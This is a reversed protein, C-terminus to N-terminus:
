RVAAIAHNAHRLFQQVHPRRLLQYALVGLLFNVPDCAVLNLMQMAAIVGLGYTQRAAGRSIAAIGFFLAYYTSPWALPGSALIVGISVALAALGGILFLGWCLRVEVPARFTTARTPDHRRSVAGWIASWAAFGLTFLSIQISPTWNFIAARVQGSRMGWLLVQGGDFSALTQGDPSLSFQSMGASRWQGALAGSWSPRSADGLVVRGRCERTAVDYIAAVDYDAVAVLSGDASIAVWSPLSVDTALKTFTPTPELNCVEVSPIATGPFSIYALRRGDGSVAAAVAAAPLSYVIQGSATDCVHIKGAEDEVVLTRGDRSLSPSLALKGTVIQRVLRRERLSYFDITGKRNVIALTDGAASSAHGALVFPPQPSDQSIGVEITRV